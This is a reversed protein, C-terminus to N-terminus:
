TWSFDLHQCQRFTSWSFLHAHLRLLRLGLLIDVIDFYALGASRGLGIVIEEAAVFSNFRCEPVLFGPLRM